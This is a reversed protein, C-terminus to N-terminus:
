PIEIVKFGAMAASAPNTGHASDPVIVEDRREGKDEFYARAILMGTFEGHAGASPQLSVADMGTIRATMEQLEYLIKLAGQVTREDQYPHIYALGPFKTVIESIKLNYKMTCSGLPYTGTDVGYSMQSLHLFHRIVQPESVEPFELDKRRLEEPIEVEVEPISFGERGKSSLEIILPEEYRAQRYGM